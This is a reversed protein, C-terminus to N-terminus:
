LVGCGNMCADAATLDRGESFMGNGGPLEAQRQLHQM